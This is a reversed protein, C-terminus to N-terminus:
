LEVQRKKAEITSAHFRVHAVTRLLLPHGVEWIWRAILLLRRLLIKATGADAPGRQSM